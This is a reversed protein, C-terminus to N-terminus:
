DLLVALEEPVPIARAEVETIHRAWDGEPRSTDYLYPAQPGGIGLGAPLPGGRAVRVHVSRLEAAVPAGLEGTYIWWDSSRHFNASSSAGFYVPGPESGDALAGSWGAHGAGFEETQWVVGGAEAERVFVIGSGFCRRGAIVQVPSRSCWM